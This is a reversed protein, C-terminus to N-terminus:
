RDPAGPPMPRNDDCGDDEKMRREKKEEFGPIEFNEPRLKRRTLFAGIAIREEVIWKV